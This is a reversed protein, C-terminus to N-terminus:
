LEATCGDGTVCCTPVGCEPQKNDQLWRNVNPSLTFYTMFGVGLSKPINNNGTKAEEWKWDTHHFLSCHNPNKAAVTCM